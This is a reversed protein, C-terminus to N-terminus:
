LRRGFVDYMAGNHIIVLRGNLILKYTERNKDSQDIIEEIGEPMHGDCDDDVVAKRCDPNWLALM